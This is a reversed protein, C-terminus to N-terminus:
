APRPPPWRPLHASAPLSIFGALAPLGERRHSAVCQQDVGVVCEPFVVDEELFQNLVEDRQRLANAVRALVNAMNQVFGFSLINALIAVAYPPEPSRQFFRVHFQGLM